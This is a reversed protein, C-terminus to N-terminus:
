VYFQLFKQHTLQHNHESQFKCFIFNNPANRQHQPLEEIEDLILKRKGM